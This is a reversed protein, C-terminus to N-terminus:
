TVFIYHIWTNEFKEEDNTKQSITQCVPVSLCQPPVILNIFLWVTNTNGSASIQKKMKEKNKKDVQTLLTKSNLWEFIRIFKRPVLSTGPSMRFMWLPRAKVMALWQVTQLSPSKWRKPLSPTQPLSTTYLSTYSHSLKCYQQIVLQLHTPQVKCVPTLCCLGFIQKVRISNALRRAM